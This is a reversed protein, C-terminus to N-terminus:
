DVRHLRRHGITRYAGRLDLAEGDSQFFLGDEYEECRSEDYYLYGDRKSITIPGIPTGLYFLRYQGLYPEWEPRDPSPGDNYDFYRVIDDWRNKTVLTGPRDGLRPLIQVESYNAYKGLYGDSFPM